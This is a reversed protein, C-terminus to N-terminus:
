GRAGSTCFCKSVRLIPILEEATMTLYRRATRGAALFDTVSRTYKQSRFAIWVIALVMGALILWDIWHLQTEM